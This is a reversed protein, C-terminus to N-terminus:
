KTGGAYSNVYKRTIAGFYGVAPSIGSERQLKAVAKMTLDGFYNTENGKSGPGFAAVTYGHENLWKQLALVDPGRSGIILDRTFQPLVVKDLSDVVTGVQVIQPLYNKGFYGYGQRGWDKSWWNAFYICDEDYAGLVVFHGSITTDPTRLPLIDKEQWSNNGNKDTWFEDGIRILVLVAKHTFILSKLAEFTLPETHFGYASITHKAAEETMAPNVRGRSSFQGLPLNTEEPLIAYPVSGKTLSKLISKMDTGDSLAFGDFSKIDIWQYDPSYEQFPKEDVLAAAFAGANAGCDPIQRQYFVRPRNFFEDPMYVAPVAGAAGLKLQYETGDEVFPQGGPNPFAHPTIPEM